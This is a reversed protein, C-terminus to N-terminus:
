SEREGTENFTLLRLTPRRFPTEEPPPTWDKDLESWLKTWNVRRVHRALVGGCNAAPVPLDSGIAKVAAHNARIADYFWDAHRSCSGIPRRRGTEVEILTGRTTARQGCVGTRRIMPAGCTPWLASDEAHPSYRRIDRRVVDLVKWTSWNGDRNAREPFVAKGCDEFLWGGEGKPPDNLITARAMWMGVVLLESGCDPDALMGAICADYRRLVAWSHETMPLGNGLPPRAQDVPM